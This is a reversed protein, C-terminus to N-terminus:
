VPIICPSQRLAINNISQQALHCILGILAFIFSKRFVGFYALSMDYALADFCSILLIFFFTGSGRFFKLRCDFSVFYFSKDYRAWWWKRWFRSIHFSQYRCFCCVGITRDLSVIICVAQSLHYQWSSSSCVLLFSVIYLHQYLEFSCVCSLFM